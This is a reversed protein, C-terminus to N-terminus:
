PNRADSVYGEAKLGKLLLAGKGKPAAISHIPGKGNVAAPFVPSSPKIKPNLELIEKPSVGTLRAIDAISLDKALVLNNVQDFTVPAPDKFRLGFAERESNIIGLAIWRPILDEANDPLPLDWYHDSNWRHVHEQITKVSTVYAAAVMMWSSDGLDARIKKLRAAFCKTSRELDMRDDHWSDDGMEVGEASSCPKELAWWGAGSSRVSSKLSSGALIPGLLAFDEPIGEKDFTDTFLWSYRAKDTLWETLVSRADLLLFNIQTLIRKQVDPRQIPILEGAFYFPKKLMPAPLSFRSCKDPSQKKPGAATALPLTGFIALVLMIAITRLLPKGQAPQDSHLVSGSPLRLHPNTQPGCKREKPPLLQATMTTRTVVESASWRALSCHLSFLIIQSKKLFRNRKANQQRESKRVSM